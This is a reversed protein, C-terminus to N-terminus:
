NRGTEVYEVPSNEQSKMWFNVYIHGDVPKLSQLYKKMIYKYVILIFWVEFFEWNLWFWWKNMEWWYKSRMEGEGGRGGLVHSALLMGLILILLLSVTSPPCTMGKSGRGVFQAGVSGAKWPSELSWITQLSFWLLGQPLLRDQEDEVEALNLTGEKWFGQKSSHSSSSQIFFANGQPTQLYIEGPQHLHLHDHGRWLM